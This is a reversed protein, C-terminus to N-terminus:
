SKLAYTKPGASVFETFWDDADTESTWLGLAGTTDPHILREGGLSVYIMSDTNFYLVCRGLPELADEYLKMRAYATVFVSIYMNSKEHETYENNQQVAAMAVDENIINISVKNWAGCLYWFFDDPETVIRSGKAKTPNYSWKGYPSNICLKAIAELGKNGNM